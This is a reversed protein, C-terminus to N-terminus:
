FPFDDDDNNATPAPKETPVGDKSGLLVFERVNIEVNFRKNGDKDTWESIKPQGVVMVAGGKKVYENATEAQKGWFTVKYWVPPDDKKGINVAVSTSAVATGGQTYKLELDRGVHGIVTIQAFNPM